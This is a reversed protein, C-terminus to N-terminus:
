NDIGFFYGPWLGALTAGFWIAPGVTLMPAFWQERFQWAGLWCLGIILAWWILAKRLMRPNALPKTDSPMERFHEPELNLDSM